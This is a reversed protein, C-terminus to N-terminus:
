YIVLNKKILHTLTGSASFIADRECFIYRLM